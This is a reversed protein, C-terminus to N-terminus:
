LTKRLEVDTLRSAVCHDVAAFLAQKMCATEGVRGICHRTLEQSTSLQSVHYLSGTHDGVSFSNKQTVQSKCSQVLLNKTHKPLGSTKLSPLSSFDIIDISTQNRWVDVSAFLFSSHSVIVLGLFFILSKVPIKLSM